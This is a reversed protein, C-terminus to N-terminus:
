LFFDDGAEISDITIVECGAARLRNHERNQQATPVKKERKFEVFVVRGEKMYMRDPAGRRGLWKIKRVLWGRREALDQVKGEIAIELM